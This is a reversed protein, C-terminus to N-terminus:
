AGFIAQKCFVDLFLLKDDIKLILMQETNKTPRVRTRYHLLPNLQFRFM